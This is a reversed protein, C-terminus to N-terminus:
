LNCYTHFLDYDSHICYNNLLLIYCISCLLHINFKLNSNLYDKSQLSVNM